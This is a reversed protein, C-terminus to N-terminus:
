RGAAADVYGRTLLLDEMSGGLLLSLPSRDDLLSHPERLWENEVELDQFLFHLTKRIWFLHSIRDRVDRGRFHELGCLVASVYDSDEPDFGLLGVADNAELRWFELLRWVFQVPGALRVSYEGPAEHLNQTHIGPLEPSPDTPVRGKQPKIPAYDWTPSASAVPEINEETCWVLAESSTGKRVGIRLTGKGRVGYDGWGAIPLRAAEGMRGAEGDRHAAEM